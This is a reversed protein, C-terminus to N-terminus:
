TPLIALKSIPRVYSGKITKITASRVINDSGPHVQEIRGMLWQLPALGQQKIIVLQGPELQQGKCKQWKHREQLSNLYESSWRSWFHQRMQEILEWRLLRNTNVDNLNPTPFSNLPTGVLFHGPTLYTMDNPDSSLPLLPRSNLISEIECLITQLEEFTLHATGVIRTLHFKTSKVAAEWLGGFNPANPPIFSWTTQHERLFLEIEGLVEKSKIFDYFEKIQKQAGVFTTANDSYM